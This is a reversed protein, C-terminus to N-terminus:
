TTAAAAEPGSEDVSSKNGLEVIASVIEHYPKDSYGSVYWPTAINKFEVTTLGIANLLKDSPNNETRDAPNNEVKDATNNETRDAPNNETRDAPNNEVKDATNNETRDAPNNEVKDATNNETRDAPNNEVKDAPNNETRGTFLSAERLFEPFPQPEAAAYSPGLGNMKELRPGDIAPMPDRKSIVGLFKDLFMNWDTGAQEVFRLKSYVGLSQRYIRDSWPFFVAVGNSYQYKGGTFGSLEICNRVSDIVERCVSELNERLDRDTGDDSKLPSKFKGPEILDINRLVCEALDKLDVNQEFMYSQCDYHAQILLTKLRNVARLDTVSRLLKGLDNIAAAVRDVKTLDWASMDVSIGAMAFRKQQEIFSRVLSVALQDPEATANGGLANTLMSGYTWGANPINGESAIMYSCHPSLEYGIELMGMVCNDFGILDIKEGDLLDDSIWELTQRLKPVTMYYASRNDSLFSMNQFGSGHGSVILAYNKAKRDRKGDKDSLCWHVFNYLSYMTASNENIRTRPRNDAHWRGPPVRIAAQYIPADPETFDFYLSPTDTERGDFYLLVNASGNLSGLTDQLARISYAMDRSLNNDGAMYVMITWEKLPSSM